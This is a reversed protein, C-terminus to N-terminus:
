NQLFCQVFAKKMLNIKIKKTWDAILLKFQPPIALWIQPPQLNLLKRILNRSVTVKECWIWFNSHFNMWQIGDLWCFLREILLGILIKLLFLERGFFKIKSTWHFSSLMDLLEIIQWQYKFQIHTMCIWNNLDYLKRILCYSETKISNEWSRACLFTIGWHIFYFKTQIISNGSLLATQITWM